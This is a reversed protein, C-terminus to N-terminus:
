QRTGAILAIAYAIIPIVYLTMVAGAFGLNYLGYLMKSIRPMDLKKDIRGSVLVVALLVGILSLITCPVIGRPRFKMEIVHTGEKVDVGMFADGLVSRASSPVGDVKVQWEDMYGTPIFLIGPKDATCEIRLSDTGGESTVYARKSIAELGKELVDTDLMALQLGDISERASYVTLYVTEDEYTGMELMGNLFFLMYQDNENFGMCPLEVIEGNIAFVYSDPVYGEQYIYLVSRKDVTLTYDYKDLQDQRGKSYPQKSLEYASFLADDCGTAAKFLDNQYEFGSLTEDPLRDLVTGFPTTYNCDYVGVDSYQGTTDYLTDNIGGAGNSYLQKVGLLADTFASGGGDLTRTYNTTYGLKNLEAQLNKNISNMWCGITSNELILGYNVSFEVNRDKIRDLSAADGSIVDRMQVNKHIYEDECEVSYNESPAIMGYMGLSAQIGVLIFCIVYTSKDCQSLIVLLYAVIFLACVLGYTKYASLERIGYATFQMCLDWLFIAAFPIMAIGVLKAAKAWSGFVRREEDSIMEVFLMILEFSLMYGFRMPFHVFSGGHWLLDSNELVIPAALFLIMWLSPAYKKIMSRGSVFIIIVAAVGIEGGFLMFYKQPAFECVTTLLVPILGGETGNAFRNSGSMTIFGPIFTFAACCFAIVTCIVLNFLSKARAEKELERLLFFVKLVMYVAVTFVLQYNTLLMLFLLIIYALKRGSDKILKETAMVFLPFIMITDLFFINTYYQIIYGCTAFAIGALVSLTKNARRYFSYYSMTFATFMLKLLLFISMSELIKGRSVFLFFLNSPFFLFSGIFDTTAIGMGMNWDFYVNKTGHLVDYVHYYAPVYSQAMDYYSVSRVGFPYVGKLAYVVLLIVGVVMPAILLYGYKKLSSINLRM